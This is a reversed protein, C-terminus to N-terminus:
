EGKRLFNDIEIPIDVGLDHCVLERVRTGRRTKELWDKLTCSIAVGHYGNGKWVCIENCTSRYKNPELPYLCVGYEKDETTWEQTGSITEIHEIKNM